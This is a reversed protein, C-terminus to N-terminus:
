LLVRMATFPDFIPGWVPTEFDELWDVSVGLSDELDLLLGALQLGQIAGKDIRLDIDSDENMDGRAYSGFLYIRKAGYQRALRSVIDQIESLTRVAM